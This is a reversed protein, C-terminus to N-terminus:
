WLYNYNKRGKATPQQGARPPQANSGYQNNYDVQDANPPAEHNKSAEALQTFRSIMWENNHIADQIQSFSMKEFDIPQFQKGANEMEKAFIRKNGADLYLSANGLVTGMHNYQEQKSRMGGSINDGLGSSFGRYAQTKLNTGSHQFNPDTLIDKGIAITQNGQVAVAQKQMNQDEYSKQDKTQDRQQKYAAQSKDFELRATDNGIRQNEFGAKTADNAETAQNHRQDEEFKSQNLDNTFQQESSMGADRTEGTLDNTLIGNNNTWKGKNATLDKLNGTQIYKQIDLQNYNEPDDELQKIMSQRKGTAILNTVGQSAFNAAKGPDYGALSATLYGQMAQRVQGARSDDVMSYKFGNRGVYTNSSNSNPDQLSQTSKQAALLDRKHDQATRTDNSYDNSIRSGNDPPTQALPQGLTNHQNSDYQQDEIMTPNTIQYAM